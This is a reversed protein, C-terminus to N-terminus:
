SPEPCFLAGAYACGHSAAPPSNAEGYGDAGVVEAPKMFNVQSNDAGPSDCTCRGMIGRVRAAKHVGPLTRCGPSWLPEVM